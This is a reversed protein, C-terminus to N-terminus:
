KKRLAEALFDRAETSRPDVDVATRLYPIAQDAHGQLTLVRGLLLNARFHRPELPTDPEAAVVQKLLPIAKAFAGDEVFVVAHHLANATRIRDRPNVGTQTRAGSGSVYGLAALRRALDPDVASAVGSESPRGGG